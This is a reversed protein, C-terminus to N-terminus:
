HRDDKDLLKFANALFEDVDSNSNKVSYKNCYARAEKFATLGVKERVGAPLERYSAAFGVVDSTTQLELMRIAENTRGSRLDNLVHLRVGLEASHRTVITVNCYDNFRRLTNTQKTDQLYAVFNELEHLGIYNDAAPEKSSAHHAPQALCWGVTLFGIGLAAAVLGFLRSSKM